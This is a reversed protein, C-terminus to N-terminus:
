RQVYQATGNGFSWDELENEVLTIFVDERRIQANAHLLEAIRRYLRQKMHVTRGSKLFIQVFVMSSSRSIGLYNPDAIMSGSDYTDILQFRDDSPIEIADVLAQHVSDAVARRQPHPISDSIGIRVFPM